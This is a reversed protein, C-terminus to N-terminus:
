RLHSLRGRSEISYRLQVRHLAPRGTKSEKPDRKASAIAFLLAADHSKIRHGPSSAGECYFSRRADIPASVVGANSALAAEEASPRRVNRKPRTRV